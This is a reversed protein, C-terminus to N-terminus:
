PEFEKLKLNYQSLVKVVDDYSKKGVNRISILENYTLDAIDGLNELGARALCNYTRVEFDVESIKIQRTIASMSNNKDVARRLVDYEYQLENYKKNKEILESLSVGKFLNSYRPRRMKRLAKAQIQRIREPTVGYFVGIEKLTMTERFRKILVGHERETLMELANYIGPVYIGIADEENGFIELALLSPFFDPFKIESM